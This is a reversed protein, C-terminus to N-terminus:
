IKRPFKGHHIGLKLIANNELFCLLKVSIKRMKKQQYNLFKMSFSCSTRTRVAMVLSPSDPADNVIIRFHLEFYSQVKTLIHNKSM